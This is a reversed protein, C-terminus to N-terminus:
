RSEFGGFSAVNMPLELRRLHGDRIWSAVIARVAPVSHLSHRLQGAPLLDGSVRVIEGTSCSPVETAQIKVFYVVFLMDLGFALAYLTATAVLFPAIIFGIAVGLWVMVTATILYSWQRGGIGILFLLGTLLYWLLAASSRISKPLQGIRAMTPSVIRALLRVLRWLVGAAEAATRAVGLAKSAEDGDARIVLLPSTLPAPRTKDRDSKRLFEPVESFGPSEFTTLSLKHRAQFMFQPLFSSMVFGFVIAYFILMIAESAHDQTSRYWFLLLIALVLPL